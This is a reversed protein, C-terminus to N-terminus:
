GHGDFIPAALNVLEVALKDRKEVLTRLARPRSEDAFSKVRLGIFPPLTGDDMGKRLQGAAADVAADEESDPRSGFGDEFDIRFDEVPERRLKEVVRQYVAPALDARIGVAQALAAADPAYEALTREALKGLKSATDSKFLHAGGYVVHVPQRMGDMM